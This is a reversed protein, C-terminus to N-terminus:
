TPLFHKHAICYPRCVYCKYPWVVCV